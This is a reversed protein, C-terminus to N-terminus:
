AHSRRRTVSGRILFSVLAVLIAAVIVQVILTQWWVDINMGTALFGGLVAGVLGLAFTLIWGIAQRGPIILRGLAGIVIGALIATFIGATSM